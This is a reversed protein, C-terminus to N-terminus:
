PANKGAPKVNIPKTPILNEQPYKELGPEVGRARLAHAINNKYSKPVSDLAAKLADLSSQGPIRQLACRADDLLERSKLVAVISDVSSDGGIESLMWLVERRFADPWDDTLLAQLNDLVAKRQDEADIRGFDHVIQWLARKAARAVELDSDGSTTVAALPKIADAGVKAASLWGEARVKDSKDKIKAILNDVTFEEAPM